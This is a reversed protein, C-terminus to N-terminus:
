AKDEAIALCQNQHVPSQQKQKCSADLGHQNSNKAQALVLQNNNNSKGSTGITAHGKM